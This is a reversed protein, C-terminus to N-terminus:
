IKNKTIFEKIKKAKKERGISKYGYYENNLSIVKLNMGKFNIENVSKENIDHLIEGNVKFDGIIDIKVGKIKAKGWYSSINKGWRENESFEVSETVYDESLMELEFAGKETTLIDIDNVKIKMGQLSLSLSGVIVWSNNMIKLKRYLVELATIIESKIM